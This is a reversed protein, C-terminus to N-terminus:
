SAYACALMGHCSLVPITKCASLKCPGISMDEARNWLQMAIAAWPIPQFHFQHKCLDILINSCSPTPSFARLGPEDNPWPHCNCGCNDVLASKADLLISPYLHAHRLEYGGLSGLQQGHENVLINHVEHWFFPTLWLNIFGGLGAFSVAQKTCLKKLFQGLLVFWCTVTCCCLHLPTSTAMINWVHTLRQSCLQHNSM